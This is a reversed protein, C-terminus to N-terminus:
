KYVEEMTGSPNGVKCPRYVLHKCMKYTENEVENNLIMEKTNM